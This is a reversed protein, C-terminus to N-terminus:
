GQRPSLGLRATIEGPSGTPEIRLEVLEYGLNSAVHDLFRGFADFRVGGLQLRIAGGETEELTTVATRLGSDILASELGAIGVAQQETPVSNTTVADFIRAQEAVWIYEAQAAALAGTARDRADQLPTLVLAWLALPLAGFAMLALLITERRTLRRVASM